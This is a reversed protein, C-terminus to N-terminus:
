QHGRSGRMLLLAGGITGAAIAVLVVLSLSVPPGSTEDPQECAGSELRTVPLWHDLRAQTAVAHALVADAGDEPLLGDLADDPSSYPSGARNPHAQDRWCAAAPDQGAARLGIVAFSTAIPDAPGARSAPWGGGDTQSRALFVEARDIATPAVDSGSAALAAMVLGTTAPDVAAGGPADDAWGGNQQQGDVLLAVSEPPIEEGLLSLALVGWATDAFRPGFSGDAAVGEVVNEAVDVPDGDAATGVADPSLGLPVIALVLLRAQDPVSSGGALLSGVADLPTAGGETAVAEVADAAEKSSWEQGTQAAQAIAAIAEPTASGFGGDAEQHREIYAISPDDAAAV